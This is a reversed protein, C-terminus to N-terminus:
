EYKVKVRNQSLRINTLYPSKSEVRILITSDKVQMRKLDARLDINATDSENTISADWDYTVEIQDPIITKESNLFNLKRIAVMRSKQLYEKTQFSVTIEEADSRIIETNLSSLSINEQVLDQYLGGNMTLKFPNKITDLVSKPGKITVKEISMRIPSVRKFNPALAINLSDVFLTVVKEIRRDINFKLTDLLIYNIAVPELKPAIAQRLTSTIKFDGRTPDGLEIELPSMGFGFSRTMLDWGGGTVELPLVEPLEGIATYLSDDYILKIPYNIQTVYDPKNLASFFWFTTSIVICLVVVKLKEDKKSPTNFSGKLKEIIDEASRM